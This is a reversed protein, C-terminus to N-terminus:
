PSGATRRLLTTSRLGSRRRATRGGQGELDHGVRVNALQGVEAHVRPLSSFPSGTSLVDVPLLLTM